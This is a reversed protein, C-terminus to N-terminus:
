EAGVEEALHRALKALDDYADALRELHMRVAVDDTDLALQRVAAARGLWYGPNCVDLEAM